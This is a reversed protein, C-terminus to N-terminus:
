SVRYAAVVFRGNELTYECTSLCILKDGYTPTHGTEYFSLKKCQAVFADFEDQDAADEFQHYKFGKGVSASTKFAAFIQYTHHETLTDFIIIPHEEYYTDYYYKELSAFMTDDQMHHGYITVNDSPKNVDCSERVYICGCFSFQKDFSRSLYFDPTEPTQMVPYNVKTGEIKIWGVMDSNMEYLPAYEPLIPPDTPEEPSTEVGSIDPKSSQAPQTSQTPQTASQISEMISALENYSAQQKNSQVLYNGVYFASVCFIGIFVVIALIYLIKGIKM